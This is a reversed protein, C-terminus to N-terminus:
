SVYNKLSAEWMVEAKEVTIDYVNQFIKKNQESSNKRNTKKYLEEFKERGFNSIIFKVFSGALCYHYLIYKGPLNMWEEQSLISSIKPLINKGIIDRLSEEHSGGYWSHGTLYEAFGEQFLGVSLGWSLSLLHTDEHEGIPKIKDTYIIHVSFDHYISQAYWDDGILEKKIEPSPYLYYNIKKSPSEIKLFSIIKNFGAEQRNVVADIEKEAISNSFYHFIYHEMEKQLWRSDNKFNEKYFPIHQKTFRAFM